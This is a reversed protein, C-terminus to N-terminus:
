LSEAVRVVAVKTPEGSFGFEVGRVLSSLLEISAAGDGEGGLGLSLDRLHGAAGKEHLTYTGSNCRRQDCRRAPLPCGRDLELFGLM